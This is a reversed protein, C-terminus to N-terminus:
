PFERPPSVNNEKLTIGVAQSRTPPPPPSPLALDHHEDSGVTIGSSISGSESAYSDHLSSPDTSPTIGLEAQFAPSRLANLVAMIKGREQESASQLAGSMINVPLLIYDM